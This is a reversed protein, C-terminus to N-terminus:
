GCRMRSACHDSTARRISMIAFSSVWGPLTPREGSALVDVRHMGLPEDLEATAPRLDHVMTSQQVNAQPVIVEVPATWTQGGIHASEDVESSASLTVTVSALVLGSCARRM